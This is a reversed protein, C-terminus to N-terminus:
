PQKHPKLRTDHRVSEAPDSVPLHPITNLTRHTTAAAAGLVYTPKAALDKARDARTMVIAAAGDTVLCCDRMGLPRSVMRAALCDEVTLPGRAFAEPNLNAWGRAAVAVEALQERTTGYQYM